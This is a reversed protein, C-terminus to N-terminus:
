KIHRQTKLCLLNRASCSPTAVLVELLDLPEVCRYVNSLWFFLPPATGSDNCLVLWYCSPVLVFSGIVFEYVYCLVVLCGLFVCLIFNFVYLCDVCSTYDSLLM